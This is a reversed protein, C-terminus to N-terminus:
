IKPDSGPEDIYDKLKARATSKKYRMHAAKTREWELIEIRLADDRFRIDRLALLAEIRSIYGRVFSRKADDYKELWAAIERADPAM